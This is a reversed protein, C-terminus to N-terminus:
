PQVGSELGLGRLSFDAIHAALRDVDYGRQEDGVLLGIVRAGIRHYLCQGVISFGALHIQEQTAHPLAERLLGWLVEYVPQVFDRIVAEGAKSPQPFEAMMLQMQWQEKFEGLMRQLM